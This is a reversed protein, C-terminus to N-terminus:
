KITRSKESRKNFHLPRHRIKDVLTLNSTMHFVFGFNELINVRTNYNINHM